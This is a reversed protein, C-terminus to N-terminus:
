FTTASSFNFRELALGPARIVGFEEGGLETEVSVGRVASLAGLISQTYRLNKVAGVVKGDEILFTGDRTMGTIVTEMPNVVNTYHFRTVLLGRETGALLDALAADGPLMALHLPYAGESSPAPLGHGTPEVGHKVASRWDYLLNAAVGRDILAVRRKPVGEFDFPAGITEPSLGDDVITILPSCVESGLRGSLYSRGEDYAKAGVGLYGLFEVLTATAAPELVVPYTGPALDRPDRSAVAKEAARGGLRDVPLDALTPESAEAYGTGTGADALISFHARTVAYSGRVGNSNAIALETEGTELAGAAEVGAPLRGIVEAVLTAREDPTTTATAEDWRGASAYAAPGPMGPFEPDPPMAGAIERARRAAGRAGEATAEHTSAVGIRNGGVVVRVRLEVDQRWTAQHIRNDAFRTLGGAQHIMLAEAADVGDVGIAAEALGFLVDDGLRPM